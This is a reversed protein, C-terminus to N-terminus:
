TAAGRTTRRPASAVTAGVGLARTHQTAEVTRDGGSGGPRAARRPRDCAAVTLSAAQGPNGLASSHGEAEHAAPAERPVRQSRLCLAALALLDEEGASSVALYLHNSDQWWGLNESGLAKVYVEVGDVIHEGLEPLRRPPKRAVFLSISRGDRAYLVQAALSGAVTAVRAGVPPEGRGARGPLTVALGVHERIWQEIRRADGRIDLRPAVADGYQRHGALADALIPFERTAGDDDLVTLFLAALVSLAGGTITTLLARRSRRPRGARAIAAEAAIRERVKLRLSDPPEESLAGAALLSYLWAESTQLARCPECHGLHQQLRVIDSVALEGDLFVSILGAAEECTM